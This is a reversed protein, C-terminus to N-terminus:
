RSSARKINYKLLKKYNQWFSHLFKLCLHGCITTGYEQYQKVNYFLNVQDGLYDLVELPPPLRGFSDFYFASNLYKALATWHTGNSKSTGHNLILCEMATPEETPLTDRMFVGRFFPIKLKVALDMIDFNSLPQINKRVKKFHNKHRRRRKM